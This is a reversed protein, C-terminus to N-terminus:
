LGKRMRQRLDHGLVYVLAIKVLDAPIYPVVGLMLGETGGVEMSFCLWLTGLAYCGCVGVMMGLLHFLRKGQFRNVMYGTIAAVVLYGALYGGTPGLVKGPGGVGGSFVPLGMCGLLIYLSCCIVGDRTELLYAALLVGFLAMSVPVPSIPLVIVWPSVVCLIATMLAIQTMRVTHFKAGRGATRMRYIDKGIKRM